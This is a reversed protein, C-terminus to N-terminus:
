IITQTEGSFPADGTLFIYLMVGCSWVDCREDYSGMLVEPAIYYPTGLTENLPKDPDTHIATGFDVLKITEFDKSEELLINEPKIDRHAIGKTHIYNVVSLIQKMLFAADGERFKNRAIIEDFLEGGKCYETIIILRKQDEFFEFMKILNPHDLEKLINVENELLELDEEDMKTKSLIKMARQTNTEKHLCIRVEGFAGTGVIRGLKYYEKM